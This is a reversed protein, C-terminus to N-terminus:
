IHDVTLEWRLFMARCRRVFIKGLQEMLVVCSTTSGLHLTIYLTTQQMRLYITYVGLKLKTECCNISILKVRLMGKLSICYARSFTLRIISLYVLSLLFKLGRAVASVVLIRCMLSWM